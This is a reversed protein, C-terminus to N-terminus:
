LVILRKKYASFHVSYVLQFLNVSDRVLLRLPMCTCCIDVSIQIISRSEIIKKDKGAFSVEHM